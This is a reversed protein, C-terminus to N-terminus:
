LEVLLMFRLSRLMSTMLEGRDRLLVDCGILAFLLLLLLLLVAITVIHNQSNSEVVAVGVPVGGMDGRVGCGVEGGVVDAFLAGM